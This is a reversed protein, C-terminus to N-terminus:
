VVLIIVLRMQGIMLIIYFSSELGNGLKQSRGFGRGLKTIRRAFIVGGSWQDDFWGGVYRIETANGLKGKRLLDSFIQDM